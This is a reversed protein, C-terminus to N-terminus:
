HSVPTVTQSTEQQEAIIVKKDEAKTTYKPMKILLNQLVENVDKVPIVELDNLVEKPVSALERMQVQPIVVRKIRERWAGILKTRLGGIACAEGRLNIAGTIATDVRVQINNLVSVLLAFIALGNSNGDHSIDISPYHIHVSQKKLFDSTLGYKRHNARLISVATDITQEINPKLKGTKKVDKDGSIVVADIQHVIGEWHNVVALGNVIGIRNTRKLIPFSLPVGLYKKVKNKNLVVKKNTFKSKKFEIDLIVKRLIKAINRELSRVGAESTYNRIVENLITNTFNIQTKGIGNLNKQKPILHKKAIDIKELDTYGPIEIFEMRDRLARYMPKKSNATAIFMVESLDFEVEAYHDSFHKNQEPDIVELMAAMPDGSYSADLKEIEDLMFVPNKVKADIMAKLIRGPMSAVYTRRHGRITAEDHIGGLSLRIFERGTAKAISQGLSTKGVGPPGLFCLVSGKNQTAIQQIALFEIIRDKVKNLGQHDKDLVERAQKLDFNLKSRKNWPLELLVDIYSRIVSSEPSMNSITVLRNIESMSKEYAENSMGADKVKQRLEEVESANSEGLDKQITAAKEKLYDQRHLNNQKKAKTFMAEQFGQIEIENNAYDDLIEFREEISDCQLIEQQKKISFIKAAILDFNEEISDKPSFKEELLLYAKKYLKNVKNLFAKTKPGEITKIISYSCIQYKEVDNFLIDEVKIRSIGVVKVRMVDDSDTSKATEMIRVLCGHAYLDDRQPYNTSEDVQTLLIVEAPKKRKAVELANLSSNRGVYLDSVVKPLIVVDRLPILPVQKIEQPQPKTKNSKTTM